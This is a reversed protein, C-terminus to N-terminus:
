RASPLVVRRSYTQTEGGPVVIRITLRYAGGPLRRPARLRLVNSGAAVRYASSLVARTGRALTLRASAAKSVDLTVTVVRTSGARAVRVAAVRATLPCAATTARISTKGSRNGVADVADVAIGYDHGCELGDLTFETSPTDGKAADDLYVRYGTVGVNDNAAAWGISISSRTAQKVTVAGPASPPTSDRGFVV